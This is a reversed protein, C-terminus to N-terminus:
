GTHNVANIGSFQQALMMVVAIILAWRLLPRKFMDLFSVRPASALKDKEEQMVKMEASVDPKQRLKKLALIM